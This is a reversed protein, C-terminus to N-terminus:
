QNLNNGYLFSKYKSQKNIGLINRLDNQKCITNKEELFLRICIIEYIL